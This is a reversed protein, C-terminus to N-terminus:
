CCGLLPLCRHDSRWGCAGVGVIRAKKEPLPGEPAALTLKAALSPAFLKLEDGELDPVM